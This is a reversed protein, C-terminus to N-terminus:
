GATACRRRPSRISSAPSTAGTRRTCARASAGERSASTAIGDGIVPVARRSLATEPSASPHRALRSKDLCPAMTAPQSRLQCSLQSSRPPYRIYRRILEGERARTRSSLLTGQTRQSKAAHRLPRISGKKEPAPDSAGCRSCRGMCSRRSCCRWCCLRAPSLTRPQRAGTTAQKNNTTTTTTNRTGGHDRAVTVCPAFQFLSLSSPTVVIVVGALISRCMCLM